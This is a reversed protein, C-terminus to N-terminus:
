NRVCRVSRPLTKVEATVVTGITFNVVWARSSDVASNTASWFNVSGVSDNVVSYIFAKEDIAPESARHDVISALEKINPLRWDTKGGLTLTQCHSVAVAHTSTPSGSNSLRQWVLGTAVDSVTGDGNDLWTDTISNANQCMLAVFISFLIITKFKMISVM